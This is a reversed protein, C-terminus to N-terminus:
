GRRKGFKAPRQAQRPGRRLQAFARGASRRLFRSHLDLDRSERLARSQQRPGVLDHLQRLRRASEAELTAQRRFRLGGSRRQRFARRGTKGDTVPSPSAMNQQATSNRRVGRKARRKWSRRARCKAAASRAPGSSRATRRISGCFCSNATTPRRPSSFRMAGSRRRARAGLRCRANGSSASKKRGPSRCAPKRSVGNGEPGRWQPWNEAHLTNPILLALLIITHRIM